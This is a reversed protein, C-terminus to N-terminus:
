CRCNLEAQRGFGEGGRRRGGGGLRGAELRLMRAATIIQLQYYVVYTIIINLIYM